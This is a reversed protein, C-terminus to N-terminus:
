TSAPGLGLQSMTLFQAIDGLWLRSWRGPDLIGMEALM